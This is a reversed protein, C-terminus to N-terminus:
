QFGEAGEHLINSSSQWTLLSFYSMRDWIDEWITTGEKDENLAEKGLAQLDYVSNGGQVFIKIQGNTDVVENM